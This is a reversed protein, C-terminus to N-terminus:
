ISRSHGQHDQEFLYIVLYIIAQSCTVTSPPACPPLIGAFLRSDAADCLEKMYLTHIAAFRAENNQYAHPAGGVAMTLFEGSSMARTHSWQCLQVGPRAQAMHGSQTCVNIAKLLLTKLM